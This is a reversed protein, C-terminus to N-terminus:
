IVRSKEYMDKYKSEKNILENHTGKEVIRGKELVCVHSTVCHIGNVKHSIFIGIKERLSDKYDSLLDFQKNVDISADPEDLILFDSKKIMARAVALRQWEGGSIQCGFWNGLYTDLKESDNMVKSLKLSDVYKLLELDNNFLQLNGYGINERITGELKLYDQFVVGIKSLYSQKDIEKLDIGNILIHGEYDDYFGLIVKVLTSKGSGNEGVIGVAEGVSLKINIDKIAYNDSNKYKYSVNELEIKEISDITVNGTKENEQLDMFQFFLKIYLSQQVINSVQSFIGNLNNQINKICELYTVVNGILINGKYGQLLIYLYMGGSAIVDGIELIIACFMSKEYIKRNQNIIYDKIKEFRKLLHEKIGLLMIEKYANGTMFLFVIYWAKREKETREIVMRYWEKDIIITVVCKILPILTVIFLMWWKYAILLVLMSVITICSRIMEICQSFFSLISAGSQSQARNIVNYTQANEFDSLNLSTAKKMMDINIKKDFEASVINSYYTYLYILWENFLNCLCFMVIIIILFKMDYKKTQLANIIHMFLFISVSPLLGQIFMNITSILMYLWNFGALSKLTRKIVYITNSYSNDVKM